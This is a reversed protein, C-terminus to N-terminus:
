LAVLLNKVESELTTLANICSSNPIIFSLYDRFYIGIGMKSEELFISCELKCMIYGEIKKILCVFYLM